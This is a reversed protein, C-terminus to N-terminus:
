PVRRTEWAAVTTYRGCRGVPASLATRHRPTGGAGAEAGVRAEGDAFERVMNESNM